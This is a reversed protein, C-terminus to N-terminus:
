ATSIKDMTNVVSVFAVNLSLDKIFNAPYPIASSAAFNAKLYAL